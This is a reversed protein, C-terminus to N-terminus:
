NVIGNEKGVSIVVVEVAGVGDAQDCGEPLVLPGLFHGFEQDKESRFVEERATKAEM